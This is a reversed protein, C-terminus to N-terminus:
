LSPGAVVRAVRFGFATSSYRTVPLNRVRFASRTSYTGNYWSGGRL